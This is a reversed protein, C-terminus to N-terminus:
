SSTVEQGALARIAAVAAGVECDPLEVRTGTDDFITLSYAPTGGTAEVVVLNSGAWTSATWRGWEELVCGAETIVSCPHLTLASPSPDGALRQPTVPPLSWWGDPTRRVLLMGATAELTHTPIRPAIPVHDDPNYRVTNAMGAVTVLSVRVTHDTARVSAVRRGPSSSWGAAPLILDGAILDRAPTRVIPSTM